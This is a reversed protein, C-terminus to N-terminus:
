FDFFPVPSKLVSSALFASLVCVRFNQVGDPSPASTGGRYRQTLVKFQM